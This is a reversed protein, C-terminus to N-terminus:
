FKINIKRPITALQAEVQEVAKILEDTKLGINVGCGCTLEANAKLWGITKEHKQGCKPCPFSISKNDLSALWRLSWKSFWQATLTTM